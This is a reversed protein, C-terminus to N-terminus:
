QKRRHTGEVTESQLSSPKLDDAKILQQNKRQLQVAEERKGILGAARALATIYKRDTEWRSYIPKLLDYAQQGRKQYMLLDAKLLLSELDQPEILLAQELRAFAEDIEGRNRNIEALYRLPIIADPQQELCWHSEREATALEGTYLSAYALNLHAQYSEPALYLAQKLPATMESVRGVQRLIDAVLLYNQAQNAGLEVSRNAYKLARNYNGKQFLLRALEEFYQSEEPYKRVLKLLAPKARKPLNQERALEAIAKVAEFYRPHQPTVNSFNELAQFPARNQILKGLQFHAFEDDPSQQLYTILEKQRTKNQNQSSTQNQKASNTETLSTSDNRDYFYFILLAFLGVVAVIVGSFFSTSKEKKAFPHSLKEPEPSTNMIMATM